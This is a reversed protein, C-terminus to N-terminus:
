ESGPPLTEAEATASEAADWKLEIRVEGPQVPPFEGNEDQELWVLKVGGAAALATEAKKIRAKVNM